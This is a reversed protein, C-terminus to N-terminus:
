TAFNFTTRADCPLVYQGSWGGADAGMLEPGPDDSKLSKCIGDTDHELYNMETDKVLKNQNTFQADGNNVPVGPPIHGDPWSCVMPVRPHRIQAIVFM